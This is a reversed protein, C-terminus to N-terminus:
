FSSFPGRGRPPTGIPCFAHQKAGPISAALATLGCKKADAGGLVRYSCRRTHGQGRGRTEVHLCEAPATTGSHERRSLVAGPLVRVFQPPGEVARAPRVPVGLKMLVRM